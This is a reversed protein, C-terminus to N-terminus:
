KVKGKMFQELLSDVEEITYSEGDVLIAGLADRRNEYKKSCLIQEKTHVSAQEITDTEKKAM